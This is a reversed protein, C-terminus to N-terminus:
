YFTHVSYEGRGDTTVCIQGDERTDFIEMGAEEIRQVTEPSPHGYRNGKGCSILATRAPIQNLFRQTTGGKSGHHAAKLIDVPIEKNGLYELMDTEGQGELDGTLIARFNGYGLLLVVSYENADEYAADAGPHICQLNLEGETLAMGRHLYSIPIGKRACIEEVRLYTEGKRKQLVSPIGVYGIRIGGPEDSQQLLELLGSCHDLDDHTMICYDIRSIGHYKLFPIEINKGISKKSSSGGDILITCEGSEDKTRICLGDGQGVDWMYLAFPPEYRVHFILFVAFSICALHILHTRMKTSVRINADLIVAGLIICYLAVVWGPPKGPTLTSFPLKETLSCLTEFLRLILVPVEGAAGAAAKLARGLFIKETIQGAIMELLLSIGGGIMLFPAMFIVIMNLLVSYLPFTYFFCLQVPLTFIPIALPKVAGPIVPM